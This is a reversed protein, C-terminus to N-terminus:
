DQDAFPPGDQMGTGRMEVELVGTSPNIYGSLDLVCILGDDMSYHDNLVRTYIRASFAGTQTNVTGVSRYDPDLVLYNTGTSAPAWYSHVFSPIEVNAGGFQIERVEPDTTAVVKYLLGAQSAAPLTDITGTGWLGENNMQTSPWSIMNAAYTANIAWFGPGQGSGVRNLGWTGLELHNPPPWHWIPVSDKDFCVCFGNLLPKKCIKEGACAITRCYANGAGPPNVYECAGQALVSTITCALTIAGITIAIRVMRWQM